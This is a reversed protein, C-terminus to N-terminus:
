LASGIEVRRRFARIGKLVTTHDRGGFFRGIQPLSYGGAAHIIAMAEQRPHAVARVRARGKLDEASLGYREAVEAITRAANGPRFVPIPQHCAECPQTGHHEIADLM